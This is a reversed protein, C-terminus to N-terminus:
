DIPQLGDITEAFHLYESLSNYAQASIRTWLAGEFAVIATDVRYDNLLTARLRQAVDDTPEGKFPLRIAKMSATASAPGGIETKWRAALERAATDILVANRQRLIPGGARVHWDIAASISLWATPDRTGIWDFEDDFCKGWGHSTVLPYTETQRAPSAWIFASGKPAMLWKHCNGVYWDAKISAIDLPLMGPAHAGDILVQAGADRCLTTLKDIPFVLATPSTVHDLIVLRTRSSLRTAIAAAVHAEDLLAFPVEVQVIKAGSQKAVRQAALLVAPYSHNTLLIEDDQNFRISNLVTNCGATANETFVYDGGNGGVFGALKEANARIASPLEYTLFKTPNREMQLQLSRQHALVDLPVAGFSGHNLFSVNPDLLWQERSILPETFSGM